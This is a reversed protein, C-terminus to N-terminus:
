PHELGVINYSMDILKCAIDMDKANLNPSEM